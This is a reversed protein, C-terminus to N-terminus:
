KIEEGIKDMKELKNGTKGLGMDDALLGGKYHQNAALTLLKESAEVQHPLLQKDPDGKHFMLFPFHEPYLYVVGRM